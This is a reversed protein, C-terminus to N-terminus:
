LAIDLNEPVRVRGTLLDDMLGKKILQLKSLHAEEKNIYDSHNNIIEVIKTQEEVSPKPILNTLIRSPSTHRVTTGTASNIVCNRMRDSNMAAILFQKNWTAQNKLKIKGIRQNHLVPFSVDLEVVRGLILTRPSLDTMVTLIDGKELVATKPFTGQYYKINNTEFYLGGERHFNGPVLLVEGPPSDAFYEGKFAHGHLIYIQDKLLVVDWERPIKGLPSDKFQELHAEPDRLEGNEDIGRTLLDCLLASKIQHLKAVKEETKQINTDLIKIISTIKKQEEIEPRLVELNEIRFLALKPVGGGTGIAVDIQQKIADGNIQIALFEPIFGNSVTIRAANETLIARDQITPTFVGAQGISGAISIFLDNKHIEYHELAFFTIGPLYQLSNYNIDTKYFDTVRLYRYNTPNESYSHGKPLRKGGLVSAYKVLKCKEWEKPFSNQKPESESM